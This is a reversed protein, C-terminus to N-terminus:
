RRDNKDLLVISMNGNSEQLHRQIGCVICHLTRAPYRQGDGKCVEQIFKTLWFNLSEHSMDTINTDLNQIKDPEFSFSCQELKPDKNGRQAQWDQFIKISWKNANRTSKPVCIEFLSKEEKGTKPTRFVRKPPMTISDEVVNLKSHKDLHIINLLTSNSFRNNGTYIQPYPFCFLYSYVLTARM